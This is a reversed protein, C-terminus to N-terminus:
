SLREGKENPYTKIAHQYAGIEYKKETNEFIADYKHAIDKSIHSQSTEVVLIRHKETSFRRISELLTELVQPSQHTCIVIM